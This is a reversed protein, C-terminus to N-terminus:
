EGKEKKDLWYYIAALFLWFWGFGMDFISDGGVFLVMAIVTSAWAAIYNRM